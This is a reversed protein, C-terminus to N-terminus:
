LLSPRRSKIMGLFMIQIFVVFVFLGIFMLMTTTKGVGIMSTLITLFTISLAPIIVSILMYFVVLPNLRNGYNQIQILQEENLSKISDKIVISMDSGAKMGNSIQWIARRFFTSPNKKALDDLVEAEPEGANMRRVGKKIESSLEGYDQGSINVLVSFLPIGSNVQILIDQLAPILNREIARQRRSVFIIPYVIQSFFVFASFLISGGLGLLWFWSVRLFALATTFIVFLVFFAIILSRISIGLYEERTIGVDARQLNKALQGKKKTKFKQSFFRSKKKLKNLNSITFPIQFKM